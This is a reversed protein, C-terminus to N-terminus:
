GHSVMGLLFRGDPKLSIEEDGIRAQSVTNEAVRHDQEGLMGGRTPSMAQNEIVRGAVLNTFEELLLLEGGEGPDIDVDAPRDGALMKGECRKPPGLLLTKAERCPNGGVVGDLVGLIGSGQDPGEHAVRAPRFALKLSLQPVAGPDGSFRGGFEEAMTMVVGEPRFRKLFEGGVVPDYGLARLVGTVVLGRPM